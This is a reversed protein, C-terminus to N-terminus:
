SRLFSIMALAIIIFVVLLVFFRQRAARAEAKLVQRRPRPERQAYLDDDHYRADMPREITARMMVERKRKEFEAAQKRPADEIEQQLRLMEAEIADRRTDLEKQKNRIPRAPQRTGKAPKKPRPM